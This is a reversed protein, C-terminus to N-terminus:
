SVGNPLDNQGIFTPRNEPFDQPRTFNPPFVWSNQEQTTRNKPEWGYSIKRKLLSMVTEWFKPDSAEPAQRDGGSDIDLM